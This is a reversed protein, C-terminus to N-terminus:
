AIDYLLLKDYAIIYSVKVSSLVIRREGNIQLQAGMIAGTATSAPERACKGGPAAPSQASAWSAIRSTDRFQQVRRLPSMWDLFPQLFM